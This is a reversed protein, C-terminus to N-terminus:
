GVDLEVAIRLSGQDLVPTVSAEVVVVGPADKRPSVDVRTVQAVRPDGLLAHRVHRRLLELNPGDLAEGLLEHVRSGYQPHGLARLEGRAILLRLTLAQALNDRGSVTALDDVDVALDADGSPQFLVRLDRKMVDDM